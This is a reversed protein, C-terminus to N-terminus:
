VTKRSENKNVKFHTYNVFTFPLLWVLNVLMILVPMWSDSDVFLMAIILSIANIWTITLLIKNKM